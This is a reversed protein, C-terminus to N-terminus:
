TSWGSSCEMGGTTHGPSRFRISIILEIEPDFLEFVPIGNREFRAFAEELLKVNEESM